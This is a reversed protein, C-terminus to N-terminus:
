REYYEVANPYWVVVIEASISTTKAKCVKSLKTGVSHLPM